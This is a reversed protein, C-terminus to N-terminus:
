LWVNLTREITEGIEVKPFFYQANVFFRHFPSSVNFFLCTGSTRENEPLPRHHRQHYLSARPGHATAWIPISVHLPCLVEEQQLGPFIIIYVSMLFFRMPRPPSWFVKLRSLSCYCHLLEEGGNDTQSKFSNQIFPCQMLRILDPCSYYSMM